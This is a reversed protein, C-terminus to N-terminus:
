SNEEPHFHRYVNEAADHSLGPTDALTELTAESIARITQFQELLARRRAPGIGKIGELTFRTARKNQLKKRYSGAFRHAEDQVATLLRLLSMRRPASLLDTQDNSSDALLLPLDTSESASGAPDRLEIVTGDATVLGRTRHRQDKVMGAMPIALGLENLVSQGASVHGKGGDLLILDPISGFESDELRALRRRLVEQMAAYDDIEQEKNLRFHRYQQRLPKGDQFVVLSGARDHEGTNSIDIAEIRHVPNGAAALDSLLRVAEQLATQGSGGLLTHRHLSERANKEAMDLWEKKLGRQPMHLEVRAGRLERLWEVMLDPRELRIPLLIEPPILAADPYHQALFAQVLDDRGQGDDPFFYAASGNLRGERIELRILCYENGNGVLGIVDSDTEKSSVVTQRAMLKELTQLRDRYLAATEFQMAEAAENMDHRLTELIGMYRGELFRCITEMVDRYAQMPVDGRCPGICRGIYYNLCPRERGIDRPLVRRCTKMPFISRLVALAQKLSGSLYPGYYRAGAKRDEGIRYAKLVRPYSENMTVRIYPYDRDDRLLINYQPQHKKILTSELMLAEIENACIITEFDTIRSIMALVKASGQPNATFYSRLRNRLNLAKGVYIISGSTDKMLYVGPSQPVLDLRADIPQGSCTM